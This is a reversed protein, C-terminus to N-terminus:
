VALNQSGVVAYADAGDAGATAALIQKLWNFVRSCFSITAHQQRRHVAGGPLWTWTRCARSGAVVEVVALDEIAFSRSATTIPVGSWQCTGMVM